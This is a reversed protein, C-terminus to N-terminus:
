TAVRSTREITTILGLVVMRDDPIERLPEFSSSRSDDYELLLRQARVNEFIPKAIGDYGVEILWRSRM